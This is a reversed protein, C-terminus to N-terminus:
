PGAPDPALVVLWTVLEFASDPQPQEEVTPLVFQRSHQLGSALRKQFMAAISDVSRALLGSYLRMDGGQETQRDFLRCLEVHPEPHGLALERFLNLVTKSQTFALRVEGDAQVYVLYYPALPNVREGQATTSQEKQRLCYIVGPKAMPIQVAPPVVAYLGLPAGELRSRNAELYRLLDLRFDDLSFDALTVTDEFEELDLIEKQLRALQRDRLRLDASVLDELQQPDLPNDTQTATLDVLAM